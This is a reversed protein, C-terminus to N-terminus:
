DVISRYSSRHFVLPSVNEFHEMQLVSLLIIQHDGGDYAAHVRTDLWLAAHEVFVSGTENSTWAIQGFRDGTSSMARSALEQDSGLVSLGITPSQSLQPWTTSSKAVSVSVLPPDLSISTFSNMSMGYPQGQSLAALAVVGTPFSSLAKRLQLAPDIHQALPTLAM